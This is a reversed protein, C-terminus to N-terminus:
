PPFAQAIAQEETMTAGAAMLETVGDAGLADHLAALVKGYEQRQTHQRITGMAALRADVFGLIRAARACADHDTTKPRLVGIAALHELAWATLVPLQYERALDLAESACEEAEDYRGLWTLYKAMNSLTSAGNRFDSFRRATALSEATHRLAIEANGVRFESESLDYLAWAVEYKAGLTEYIPLAEAFYARAAVIDGTSASLYGLCRLIYAVLRRIGFKRAFALAEEFLADAASYNELCVLAQGALSQARVIGLQDGVLRYRSIAEEAAACQVKYERLCWAITAETLSLGALVNAPTREDSSELALRLWRRGEVPAFYLWMLRLEGVLRQGLVVDGRDAITWQLAARWNDLEEQVRARWAADTDTDYARNLHEALDLAALAHRRTAVKEEGRMALRERAYQRFSELFRYRPESAEFDAAVLSKDVLSSLLGLVDGEAVDDGAGVAVAAELTCGGAFLSLREFIRQEPPSLLNYSWDITARMTQQRPLATREGGTLIRFRDGLREILSTVSLLNMRAAALEIALPIGDLRRCLDAVTSANKETLAFNHDVAQARDRFLVIAEYTAADTAGLGRTADGAPVSLSPLRYAYEAAARLPERSTALIRLRPCGPLLTEALNAAQTIVHECNDLILLLAKNRLFAALTEVLPRNPAEQVGLRAAIAAVVLSANGIPALGVFCVAVEAQRGLATGVHLATQTKGIGGAGTVTVLRHENVLTAIEDLEMERGVFSTLALPLPSSVARAWPSVESPERPRVAPRAAAAELAGRQEDSLALARALLALTERQPTRRDGRELAGIGNASMRAREALAEQSLGAGLRYYRLLTGFDSSVTGRGEDEM